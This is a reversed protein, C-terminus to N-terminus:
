AQPLATWRKLLALGLALIPPGIFIGTFGFATIGGVVGLVVTLMSLRSGRSILYPRVLNDISSIVLLGWLVLFIGRGWHGQSFLWISAGGWLLPPGAPVVSVFFTASGLLFAGPVGAILFGALAVLSQALAAGFLGQMVGTVTARITELLDNGLGGALRAMAAQLMRQIHEGDRYIFFGVFVAFIMQLLSRGLAAGLALLLGRAPDWLKSLLAAAEDGGAVVTEWYDASLDGVVPLERLWSPPQLSIGGIYPRMAEFAAGAQDALQVALLATPGIILVVMALVMILAALSQRGGLAARLREFLPWTSLCVVGALLIAPLFVRLVALAGLALLAIGSLRILGIMRADMAAHSEGGLPGPTGEESM